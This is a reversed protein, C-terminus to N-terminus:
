VDNGEMSVDWSLSLHCVNLLCPHISGPDSSPLSARHLFRPINTFLSYHARNPLFLHILQLSLSLPLEEIGVLRYWKLEDAIDREILSPKVGKAGTGSTTRGQQEASTYFHATASLRLSDVTNPIKQPKSLVDLRKIRELLRASALALDHTSSLTLKHIINELEMARAQLAETPRSRVIGSAWRCEKSFRECRSCRPKLGDCKKKRSRCTFCAAGKSLM